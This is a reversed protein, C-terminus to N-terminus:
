NKSRKKKDNVKCRPTANFKEKKKEEVLNAKIAIASMCLTYCGLTSREGNWLCGSFAKTSKRTSPELSFAYEAKPSIDV